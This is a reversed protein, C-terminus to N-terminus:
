YVFKMQGNMIRKINERGNAELISMPYAEFHYTRVKAEALPLVVEKM